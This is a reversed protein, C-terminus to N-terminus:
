INNIKSDKKAMMMNYHDIHHLKEFIMRFVRLYKDFDGDDFSVILDEFISHSGDNIYSILAKCILLEEGEFLNICEEYNIGGIVQFYHELIRRMTNFVGKNTSQSPERLDNWLLEYSTKIPNDEYPVITSIENRKRIVFYKVENPSFKERSGLFTIEKHFYVNHTLVYIQKIGERNERCCKIINKVLTSVIFLVNSDLSSIPDDIVLIKNKNVRTKEQSGFCLHYFYLFSIFNHEGESLTVSADEGSPRVIKYTGKKDHNEAISFGMFGFGELIKNIAGVTPTISTIKAEKESIYIEMEHIKRNQELVKQALSNIGRQKGESDMIYQQIVEKNQLALFIWVLEKCKEKADDQNNILFNHKSIVENFEEIIQSLDKLLETMDELVVVTSLASVKQKILAENKSAKAEFNEVLLEFAEYSLINYRYQLVSSIIGRLGNLAQVYQMEFREIALRDRDYSEDFYHEILEQVNEPMEQQCYPCKGATSKSLVIGRKVWDSANLFDIFTGVPTDAKGTIIKEMLEGGPINLLVSTDMKKYLPIAQLGKTFATHYMQQLEAYAVNEDGKLKKITELCKDFFVSKKGRYGSLAEAFEAGYKIQTEWCIKEANARLQLVESELKKKSQENQNKVNQANEKELLKKRIEEQIEISEKGLTFIGPLEKDLDFNSQIFSRNYVVIQEHESGDWETECGKASIDGSLYKSFSTKGTGNGGYIFNIKLPKITTPDVYTAINHLVIKNIM